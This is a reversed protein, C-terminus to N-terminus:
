LEDGLLREIDALRMQADVQAKLRAQRARRIQRQADLLTAFDVRGTEYAALASQFTLQAQPLLATSALQETRRAAELGSLNEALDSLVQNATADRRAMAAALMSEAEREQSRRTEQQLPINLEVMVEWMEARSGVQIPAIGFTFDPYRNRLALERGKQASRVRADEAFLQPNRVRVRDELATYELRVPPPLARLETPEALASNSPRALLANLRAQIQRKESELAVLEARMGTQEVQARIADQQAALGGAYRVQAVKELRNMLDLVEATLRQNNAVYYYQAYAAKVKAALEAWTSAARARAQDTDAEAVERKLDRKGFYPVSQMLLYRTSGVRGPFLSPRDSSGTNTINQLETRIVPDPLAGAPQVRQQAADAEHRMAALEPNSGRAYALLSELSAGPEVPQALAAAPLGVSALTLCVIGVFRIADTTIRM